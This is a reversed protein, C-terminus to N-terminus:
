RHREPDIGAEKLWRYVTNRGAGLTAALRTVNGDHATLLSALEAPGPRKARKEPAAAAGPRPGSRPEPPGALPALLAELSSSLELKGGGSEIVAQEVIKMLERVNRPYDHRLLRLMLSRDIVRDPCKLAALAHQVIHPIDERRARLPPVHIVWGSLRGYLDERFAGAAVMAELDRHTAAVFRVDVPKSQVAGVRTVARDQLVRLLSRQLAPSADGIEDLFVTGGDASEIVGARDRDAGSFAGRMCGFLESQLVGDNVGGCNVACFPGKRGSRDHVDRAVLEKGTGTEGLVLVTTDHPAVQEIRHLTAAILHSVGRIRDHRPVPYIAPAQHYFLLTSGVGVVDGPVLEAEKIRAGNVFTGNRSGEDSVTTTTGTCVVRAHSRSIEPDDLAGAGLALGGRGLVLPEGESLVVRIGLRAPERHHVVSLCPRLADRVGASESLGTVTTTPRVGRRKARLAGLSYLSYLSLHPKM